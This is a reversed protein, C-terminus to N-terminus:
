HGTQWDTLWRQQLTGNAIVVNVVIIKIYSLLACFKSCPVAWFWNCNHAFDFSFGVTSTWKAYNATPLFFFYKGTWNNALQILTDNLCSQDIPWSLIPTSNMSTWNNIRNSKVPTRRIRVCIQLCLTCIWKFTRNWDLTGEFSHSLLKLTSAMALGRHM